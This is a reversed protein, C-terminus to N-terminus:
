SLYLVGGSGPAAFSVTFAGGTATINGGFDIIGWVKWTSSAGANKDYVVGYRATGTFPNWTVDDADLYARDNSTDKTIAENALSEGYQTYGTADGEHASVDDWNETTDVNPTYTDKLLALRLDTAAALAAALTDYKFTNVVVNAM